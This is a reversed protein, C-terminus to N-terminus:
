SLPAVLFVVLFFLEGLLLDRCPGIGLELGKDARAAGELSAFAHAAVTAEPLTAEVPFAAAALAVVRWRPAPVVQAADVAAAFPVRVSIATLCFQWTALPRAKIAALGAMDRSVAPLQACGQEIPPCITLTGSTM